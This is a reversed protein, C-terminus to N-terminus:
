WICMYPLSFRYRVLKESGLTEFPAQCATPEWFCRNTQIFKQQFPASAKLKPSIFLILVRGLTLEIVLEMKEITWLEVSTYFGGLCLCFSYDCM